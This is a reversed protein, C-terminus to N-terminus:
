RRGLVMDKLDVPGLVRGSGTLDGWAASSGMAVSGRGGDHACDRRDEDDETAEKWEARKGASSSDRM